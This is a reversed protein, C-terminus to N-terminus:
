VRAPQVDGRRKPLPPIPKDYSLGINSLPALQKVLLLCSQVGFSVGRSTDSLKFEQLFFQFVELLFDSCGFLKDLVFFVRMALELCSSSSRVMWNFVSSASNSVKLRCITAPSSLYSSATMASASQTRTLAMGEM